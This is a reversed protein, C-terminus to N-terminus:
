LVESETIVLDLRVDHPQPGVSRLRGCDFAVGVTVPRVKLAALTRDYYGGGYGLRYRQRDVGLCPILLVQPQVLATDQPVPIGYTGLTMNTDPRWARFELLSGNVLPLALTRSADAALWATVARTVDPEGRIPSYFALRSVPITKLWRAVRNVLVTERKDREVINARLDLLRERADARQGLEGFEVPGNGAPATLLTQSSPAITVRGCGTPTGLTATRDSSGKDRDNQGM